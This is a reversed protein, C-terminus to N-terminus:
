IDCHRQLHQLHQLRHFYKGLSSFFTIILFYKWSFLFPQLAGLVLEGVLETMFVLSSMRVCHTLHEKVFMIVNKADQSWNSTCCQFTRDSFKKWVFFCRPTTQNRPHSFYLVFGFLSIRATQRTLARNFIQCAEGDVKRWGNEIWRNPASKEIM